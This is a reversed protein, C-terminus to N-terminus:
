AVVTGAVLSRVCGAPLGARAKDSKVLQPLALACDALQLLLEPEVGTAGRLVERRQALLAQDLSALLSGADEVPDLVRARELQELRGPLDQGGM